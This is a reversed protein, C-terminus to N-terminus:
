HVPAAGAGPPLENNLMSARDSLSTLTSPVHRSVSQWGSRSEGGGNGTASPLLRNTLSM